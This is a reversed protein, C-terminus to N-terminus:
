EKVEVRLLKKGGDSDQYVLKVRPVDCGLAPLPIDPHEVLIEISQPRRMSPLYVGCIAYEAPLKLRERIKEFAGHAQLKGQTDLDKFSFGMEWLAFGPVEIVGYRKERDLPAEKTTRVKAILDEFEEPQMEVLVALMEDKPDHIAELLRDLGEQAQVEWAAVKEPCSCWWSRYGYDLPVTYDHESLMWGGCDPCTPIGVDPKRLTPFVKSVEEQVIQRIHEREKATLEALPILQRGSTDISLLTRTLMPKGESDLVQGGTLPDRLYDIHIDTM